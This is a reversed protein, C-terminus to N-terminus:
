AITAGAYFLLSAVYGKHCVHKLVVDKRRDEMMDGVCYKM